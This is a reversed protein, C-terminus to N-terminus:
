RGEYRMIDYNTFSSLRGWKVWAASGDMRGVALGEPPPLPKAGTPYIVSASGRVHPMFSGWAGSPTGDWHQCTTLTQSSPNLRDTTKQPRQYIVSGGPGTLPTRVPITDGFYVWGLYVWGSGADQGINAGFLARPGGPYRLISQCAAANSSCGYTIMSDWSSKPFHAIDNAGPFLYDRFDGAYITCALGFQHLNSVDQIRRAKEKSRALAPLMMAALIAIIAIVVLLEILTFATGTFGGRGPVNRFSFSHRSHPQGMPSSGTGMGRAPSTAQELNMMRLGHWHAENFDFPLQRNSPLKGPHCTAGTNAVPSTIRYDAPWECHVCQSIKPNLNAARFKLQHGTGAGPLNEFRQPECRGRLAPRRRDPILNGGANSFQQFPSGNRTHTDTKSPRHIPLAASDALRVLHLPPRTKVHPPPECPHYVSGDPHIVICIHRGKALRHATRPHPQIRHKVDSEPAAHTPSQHQPSPNVMTLNGPLRFNAM